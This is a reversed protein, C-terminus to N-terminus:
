VYMFVNPSFVLFMMLMLISLLVVHLSLLAYFLADVRGVAKGSDGECGLRRSEM